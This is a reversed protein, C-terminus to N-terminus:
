PFTPWDGIAPVLPAKWFLFEMITSRAFHARMTARLKDDAKRAAHEVQARYRNVADLFDDGGYNKIWEDYEEPIKTTSQLRKELLLAGVHGYVWFCPLLAALGAAAPELATVKLLFATYLLTFPKQDANTDDLNWKKFFSEHLAKEAIAAGDAFAILSKSQAPTNEVKGAVLRLAKAFDGLYLADQLVYDTFPKKELSGDVLQLLFPHSETAEIIKKNERWCRDCTAEVFIEKNDGFPAACVKWADYTEYHEVVLYAGFELLTDYSEAGAAALASLLSYDHCSMIRFFFPTENDTNSVVNLLDQGLFRQFGDAKQFRKEWVYKAREKINLIDTETLLATMGSKKEYKECELLSYAYTRIYLRIEPSEEKVGLKEWIKATEESYKEAEESFEEIDGNKLREVYSKYDTDKIDWSKFTRERDYDNEIEFDVNVKTADTKGFVQAWFGKCFEEGSMVCRQAPSSHWEFRSSTASFAASYKKAFRSGLDRMMRKGEESLNNDAVKKEEPSSNPKLKKGWQKVIDSDDDFPGLEAWNPTRAGHRAVVTVGRLM